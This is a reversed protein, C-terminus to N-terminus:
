NKSITTVTLWYHSNLYADSSSDEFFGNAKRIDRGPLIATLLYYTKMDKILLTPNAIIYQEDPASLKTLDIKKDILADISDVKNSHFLLYPMEHAQEGIKTYNTIIQPSIKSEPITYKKEFVFDGPSYFERFKWYNQPNLKNDKKIEDLFSYLEAQHKSPFLTSSVSPSLMVFTGLLIISLVLLYSRQQLM